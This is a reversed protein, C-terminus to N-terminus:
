VHTIHTYFSNSNALKINHPKSVEVSANAGATSENYM